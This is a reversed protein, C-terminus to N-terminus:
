YCPFHKPKPAIGFAHKINNQGPCAGNEQALQLVAIYTDSLFNIMCLHLKLYVLFVLVTM